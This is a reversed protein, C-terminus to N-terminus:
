DGIKLDVIENKLHAARLEQKLKEINKMDRNYQKEMREFKKM